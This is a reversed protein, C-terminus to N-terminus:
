QKGKYPIAPYHICLVDGDHTVIHPLKGCARIKASQEREWQIQVINAWVAAFMLASSVAALTVVASFPIRAHFLQTSMAKGKTHAM